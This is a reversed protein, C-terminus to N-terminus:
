LLPRCSVRSRCDLPIFLGLLMHPKSSCCASPEYPREHIHAYIVKLWGGRIRNPEAQGLTDIKFSRDNEDYATPGNGQIRGRPGITGISSQRTSPLSEPSPDHQLDDGVQQEQELDQSSLRWSPLSALRYAKPSSDRHCGRPTVTQTTFAPHMLMHNLVALSSAISARCAAIQRGYLILAAFSRAKNSRYDLRHM